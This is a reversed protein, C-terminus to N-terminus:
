PDIAAGGREEALREAALALDSVRVGVGAALRLLSDFTPNLEGREVGGIYNRHLGSGHGMQEQSM